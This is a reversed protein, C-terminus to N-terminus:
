ILKWECPPAIMGPSLLDELLPNVFSIMLPDSKAREKSKGIVDGIAKIQLGYLGPVIYLVPVAIKIQFVGTESLGLGIETPVASFVVIQEHANRISLSLSIRLLPEDIKLVFSITFGQDSRIANETDEVINVNRITIARSSSEPDEVESKVLQLYQNIADQVSGQAVVKGKDLVIGKTCLREVAALNHSIFVVTRGADAIEDMKGLCKKQFEADGVALVEDVLLIDPELHSAVSFALRLYMGSSYFKVPTDIFQSIGSFDVIQDFKELIEKKKMGLIAGNLFINERGTLESHFGTGVELLAGACGNLTAQGNTPDTIGALIKLLTSKGSGNRGIIGVADGRNIEFSVDSLAWIENEKSSALRHKLFDFPLTIISMLSERLTCSMKERAGLKYKKSIKEAKVAFNTM